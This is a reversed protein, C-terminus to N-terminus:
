LQMLIVWTVYNFNEFLQVGKCFLEVDLTVWLSPKIIGQALNMTIPNVVLKTKVGLQEVMQLIMFLNTMGLDLLYCM